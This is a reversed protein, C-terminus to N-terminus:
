IVFLTFFMLLRNLQGQQGQDDRRHQGGGQEHHGLQLHVGVEDCIADGGKTVLNAM